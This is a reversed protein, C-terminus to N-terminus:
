AGIGFRRAKPEEKPTLGERVLDDVLASMPVGTARSRAQLLDITVLTLNFKVPKHPETHFRYKTGKEITM